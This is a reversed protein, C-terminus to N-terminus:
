AESLGSRGASTGQPGLAAVSPDHEPSRQTTPTTAESTTTTPTTPGRDARAKAKAARAAAKEARERAKAEREPREEEFKLARLKARACPRCFEGMSSNYSNMIEVKAASTRCSKCPSVLDRTWYSM